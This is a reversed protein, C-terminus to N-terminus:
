CTAELRGRIAPHITLSASSQKETGQRSWLIQRKGSSQVKRHYLRTGMERANLTNLGSGEQLLCELINISQVKFGLYHALHYDRLNNKLSM